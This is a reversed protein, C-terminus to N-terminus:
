SAIMRSIMAPIAAMFARTRAHAAAARQEREAKTLNISEDLVARERHCLREAAWVAVYDDSNARQRYIQAWRKDRENYEEVDARALLYRRALDLMTPLDTATKIAAEAERLRNRWTDDYQRKKAM